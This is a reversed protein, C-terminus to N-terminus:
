KIRLVIKKHEFIFHGEFVNPRFPIFGLLSLAFQDVALSALVSRRSALRLIFGLLSLAFQDVELALGGFKTEVEGGFVLSKLWNGSLLCNRLFAQQAHGPEGMVAEQGVVELQLSEVESVRFGSKVRKVEM